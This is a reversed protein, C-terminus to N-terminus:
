ARKYAFVVMGDTRATQPLLRAGRGLREWPDPPPTLAILEPHDRALRKDHFLSEDLTLTCASLVLVGGPKVLPITSEILASQLTVLDALDDVSVRWRADPRRHLVGLGSCPVDLLVRDFSGEAFPSRLGDALVPLVSDGLGLRKVNEAILAVRHARVDAAIITAGSNALYTSKGGPAACVDLVLDGRQAGVLQAVWQSAPDQRYGDERETVTPAEDMYQLTEAAVDEGLDACLRDVIWDPYSLATAMDPWDFGRDVDEAVRRLIANVFGRSKGPALDVMESVAAHAPIGLIALQYAGMHLVRQTEVDVDRTVHRNILWDVSRRRRVTGYTLETALARDRTELKTASL